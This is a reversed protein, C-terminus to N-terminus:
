NAAGQTVKKRKEHKKKVKQRKKTIAEYESSSSCGIQVTGQRTTKAVAGPPNEPDEKSRTRQRKLWPTVLEQTPIEAFPKQCNM